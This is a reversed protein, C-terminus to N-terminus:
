SPRRRPRPPPPPDMEYPPEWRQLHDALAQRAESFLADRRVALARRTPDDLLPVRLATAIKELAGQLQSLERLLREDAQRRCRRLSVLQPRNLHIRRITYDGPPTRPALEGNAQEVWHEDPDEDCPDVFRRGDSEQEPSPWADGKRRNCIRCAYYLNRYSARLAPFASEPRFHEVEFNDHGQNEAEHITCYACRYRFDRRLYFKYSGPQSFPPPAEQRETRAM